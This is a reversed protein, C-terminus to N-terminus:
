HHGFGSGISSLGHSEFSLGHESGFSLGSGGSFGHGGGLSLGSEGFGGSSFEEHGKVFVPVPKKIIKYEPIHVPVPKHVPV